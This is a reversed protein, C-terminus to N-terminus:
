LRVRAFVFTLALARLLCDLLSCVGTFSRRLVVARVRRCVDIRMGHHRFEYLFVLVFELRFKAEIFVALEATAVRAAFATLRAAAAAVPAL